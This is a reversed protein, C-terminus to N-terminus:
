AARAPPRRPRAYQRLAHGYTFLATVAPIAHLRAVFAAAAWGLALGTAALAGVLLPHRHRRARTSSRVIGPQAGSLDRHRRRWALAGYVGVAGLLLFGQGALLRSFLPLEATDHVFSQIVERWALPHAQWTAHRSAPAMRAVARLPHRSAAPAGTRAPMPRTGRRADGGAPPMLVVTNSNGAHTIM